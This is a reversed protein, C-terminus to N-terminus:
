ALGAAIQFILVKDSEIGGIIKVVSELAILAFRVITELRGRSSEAILLGDAALAKELTAAGLALPVIPM